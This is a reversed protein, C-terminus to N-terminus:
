QGRVVKPLQAVNWARRGDSRQTEQIANSSSWVRYAESAMDLADHNVRKTAPWAQYYQFWENALILVLRYASKNTRNGLFIQNFTKFGRETWNNTSLMGDRNSGEPLGMDTWLDRWEECLWNAEFYDWLTEASTPSGDAIVDLRRRFRTTYAPWRSIHRCRQLEHVAQLLQHKRVLSLVPRPQREGDPANDRQWRLIAQM